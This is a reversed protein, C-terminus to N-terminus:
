RLQSYHTCYELLTRGEVLMSNVFGLCALHDYIYVWYVHLISHFLSQYFAWNLMYWDLGWYLMKKYMFVNLIGHNYSTKRGRAISRGTYEEPICLPQVSQCSSTRWIMWIKCYCGGGWVWFLLSILALVLIKLLVKVIGCIHSSNLLTPQDNRLRGRVGNRESLWNGNVLSIYCSFIEVVGSPCIEVVNWLKYHQQNLVLSGLAVSSM